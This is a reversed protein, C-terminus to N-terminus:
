PDSGALVNAMEPAYEGPRVFIILPPLVLADGAQRGLEVLFRDSQGTAFPAVERLRRPFFGYEPALALLERQRRMPYILCLSGEGAVMASTLALLEALSLAVEFKALRVGVDRSAPGQGLPYFPPNAFVLACGPFREALLRVDGEVVTMRGGLGNAAANRRAMDALVPQIELATVAEFKRQFLALLSVIGCGTGVEVVPGASAPLFDALIPADVAFRYGKEPQSVVM